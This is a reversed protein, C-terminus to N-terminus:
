RRVSIVDAKVFIFVKRTNDTYGKDNKPSIVGILSHKGTLVSVATNVRVTYMVPMMINSVGNKDKWESWITNEVHYVIEPALRIDVIKHNIGLTPEIELTSGLNRTEFATPIPGTFYDKLSMKETGEIAKVNNPPVPPDYETPYIFERISEITSKEGSRAVCIQSEVLKAKGAKMLEEIRKRLVIDSKSALEESMVAHMQETSMEIYEVNIRIQKPIENEADTGIPDFTNFQAVLPASAFLLPCLILLPTKLNM